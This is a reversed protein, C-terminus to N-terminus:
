PFVLKMVIGNEKPHDYYDRRMAIREFNLSEYLAIAPMNGERVELFVANLGEAATLADEILRRAIGQRRCDPHVAVEIISGEDLIQEFALFGVLSEGEFAATCRSDSKCLEGKLADMSLASAGFCRDLLEKVAGLDASTVPAIIM